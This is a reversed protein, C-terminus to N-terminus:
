KISSIPLYIISDGQSVQEFTYNYELVINKFGLIHVKMQYNMYSVSPTSTGIM